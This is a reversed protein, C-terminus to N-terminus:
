QFDSLGVKASGFVEGSQASTKISRMIKICSNLSDTKESLYALTSLTVPPLPNTGKLTGEIRVIQTDNRVLTTAAATATCRIKTLLGVL